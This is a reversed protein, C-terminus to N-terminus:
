AENHKIQPLNMLNTDSLICYFLLLYLEVKNQTDKSGAGRETEVQMEEWKEANVM